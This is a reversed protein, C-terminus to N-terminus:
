GCVAATDGNHFHLDLLHLTDQTLKHHGLLYNANKLFVDDMELDRALLM